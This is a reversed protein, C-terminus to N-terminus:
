RLAEFAPNCAASLPRVSLTFPLGARMVVSELLDARVPPGSVSASSVRGAGNAHGNVIVLQCAQTGCHSFHETFTQPPGATRTYQKPGFVPMTQAHADPPGVGAFLAVVAILVISARM